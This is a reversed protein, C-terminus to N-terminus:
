EYIYQKLESYQENIRTLETDLQKTLDNIIKEVSEATTLDYETYKNQIAKIDQELQEKKAEYKLKESILENHKTKLEQFKKILDDSM